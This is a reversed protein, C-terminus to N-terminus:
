ESGNGKQDMLYAYAKGLGYQVVPLDQVRFSSSRKWVDGQKYSRTVSVSFVEVTRGDSEIENSWVAVEILASGTGYPGFSQVPKKKEPKSSRTSQSRQTM